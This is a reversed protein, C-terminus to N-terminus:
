IVFVLVICYITSMAWYKLPGEGDIRNIDTKFRNCIAEFIDYDTTKEKAAECGLDVLTHYLISSVNSM